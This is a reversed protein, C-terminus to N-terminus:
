ANCFETDKLHYFVNTMVYMMLKYMAAKIRNYIILHIQDLTVGGVCYGLLAAIMMLFLIHYGNLKQVSSPRYNKWQIVSASFHHIISKRGGNEPASIQSDHDLEQEEKSLSPASAVAVPLVLFTVGHVDEIVRTTQLQSDETTVISENALVYPGEDGNVHTAERTAELQSDKTTVISDNALVSPGEDDSNVYTAERPPPAELQSDEATVISANALVSPGEDDNVHIAERPAELQSDEIPVEISANASVFSREDGNVRLRPPLAVRAIDFIPGKIDLVNKRRFIGFSFRRWNKFFGKEEIGQVLLVHEERKYIFFISMSYLIDTSNITIETEYGDIQIRFVWDFSGHKEGCSHIFSHRVGKPNNPPLSMRAWPICSLREGAGVLVIKFGTLNFLLTILFWSFM